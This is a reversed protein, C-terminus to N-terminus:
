YRFIHVTMRSMTELMKIIKAQYPWRRKRWSASQFTMRTLQAMAKNSHQKWTGAIADACVAEGGHLELDNLFHNREDDEAGENGEVEALMHAPVVGDGRAEEDARDEEGEM